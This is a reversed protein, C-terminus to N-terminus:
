GAPFHFIMALLNLTVETADAVALRVGPINIVIIVFIFGYRCLSWYTEWSM